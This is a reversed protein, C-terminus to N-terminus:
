APAEAHATEQERRRLLLRECLILMGSLLGFQQLAYEADGTLFTFSFLNAFWFSAVVGCALAFRDEYRYYRLEKVVRWALVSGGLLFLSLGLFGPLGTSVMLSVPGDMFIGQVAMYNVTALVPHEASIYGTADFRSYGRGLLLYQPIMEIGIRRLTRRAIMTNEADMRTQSRVQIGPLFSLARQASDPLRDAFLYSFTVPIAGVLLILMVNRPTFFRQIYAVGFVTLLVIVYLIRHGSLLGLVLGAGLAPLLWLSRRSIFTRLPNFLLLLMTIGLGLHLFSQFRRIGFRLAQSEFNTGDYPPKFVYLLPMFKGSTLVFDSILYTGALVWQLAFLRFLSKEDTSVMAFLLPFVACVLQQVYLRGGGTKGGLAVMGAGRTGMLVVLVACYALLGFFLWRNRHLSAGFDPDYRRVMGTVAMGSWGLLAAAEWVTPNGPLVGVVLASSFTVVSIRFALETHYPLTALWLVGALIFAAFLWDSALFISLFLVGLALLGYALVLYFRLRLDTLSAEM